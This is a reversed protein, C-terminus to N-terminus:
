PQAKKSRAGGGCELLVICAQNIQVSYHIEGPDFGLPRYTVSAVGVVKADATVIPGGQMAAGIPATHQFGATSQDIIIGSTLSAGAGGLGSVPFVRLGLSQAQQEDSAWDLVQLGGRDAELLALDRDPDISVLRAKFEQADKRLSIEPAPNVSSARVTSFSTILLSTQDSSAVPFATGVAPRGEEDLTAVFWVYPAFLQALQVTKAEALYPAIPKLQNNIDTLAQNKVADIQAQADSSRKDFDRVQEKLESIETNFHAWLFAATGGAAVGMLAFILMWLLVSRTFIPFRVSRRAAYRRAREAQRWERRKQSRRVRPVAGDDGEEAWDDDAGPEAGEGDYLDGENPDGDDPAAETARAADTTGTPEDVAVTADGAPPGDDPPPGPREDTQSM